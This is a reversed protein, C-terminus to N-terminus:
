SNDLRRTRRRTHWRHAAYNRRQTYQILALAGAADLARGPLGVQLLLRVQPVTLAPSRSGPRCRLRVLFHHAVLTMTTHHHWGTWGRVEDQDL